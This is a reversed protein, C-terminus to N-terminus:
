ISILFRGPHFELRPPTSLHSISVVQGLGLVDTSVQDLWFITHTGHEVLYYGCSKMDERPELFLEMTDSLKIDKIRLADEISKAWSSVKAMTESDYLWAETVVRLGATHHFYPQGEPHTFAM